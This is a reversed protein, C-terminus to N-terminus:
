RTDLEQLVKFIPNYTDIQADNMYLRNRSLMYIHYKELTNLHKGHIKLRYNSLHISNQINYANPLHLHNYLIKIVHVYRMLGYAPANKWNIIPRIPTNQKHLKITAHPSAAMPNM